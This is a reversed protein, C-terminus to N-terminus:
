SSDARRKLIFYAATQPVVIMLILLLIYLWTDKENAEHRKVFDRCFDIENDNCTAFEYVLVISSAYYLSCLYKGWRIWPPLLDIPVFLGSFFFQPVILPMTLALIISTNDSMSGFLAALSTVTLAAAYNILLYVGFNM